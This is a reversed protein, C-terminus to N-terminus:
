KRQILSFDKEHDPSISYLPKTWVRLNTIIPTCFHLRRKSNGAAHGGVGGQNIFFQKGGVKIGIQFHRRKRSIIHCDRSDNTKLPAL